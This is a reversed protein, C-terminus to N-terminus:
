LICRMKFHNKEEIHLIIQLSSVKVVLILRNHCISLRPCKWSSANGEERLDNKYIPMKSIIEGLWFTRLTYSFCCWKCQRKEFATAICFIVTQEASHLLQVWFLLVKKEKTKKKKAYPPPFFYPELADIFFLM